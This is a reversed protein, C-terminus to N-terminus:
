PKVLLCFLEWPARSSRSSGRRKSRRLSHLRRDAGRVSSSIEVFIWTLLIKLPRPAMGVRIPARGLTSRSAMRGVVERSYSKPGHSASRGSNASGSSPISWPIRPTRSPSSVEHTIREIRAPQPAEPPMVARTGSGSEDVAALSTCLNDGAGAPAVDQVYDTTM